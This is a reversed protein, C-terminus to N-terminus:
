EWRLARVPDIRSARKSPAWSAVLTVVFLLLPAVVFTMPDKSSVEFLLSELLRTVALAGVIGLVLGPVTPLLGQRVIMWQVEEERAGMAVRIGIERTRQSVVYAVIGFLGISGLLVAAGAAIALLTLTFAPQAVSEARIDEFTRARVVPVTPDVSAVIRRIPDVLDLLAGEAKVMYVMRRLHTKDWEGAVMPLFIVAGPEETLGFLRADELVGVIEGWEDEGSFRVREGLASGDMYQREFSENVWLPVAGDTEHDLRDMSRGSALNMGISAFLDSSAAGYMAFPPLDGEDTPRSEISFTRGNELGELVPISNIAGVSTVGPLGGIEDIVRQHFRAQERLDGGGRLAVAVTLVGETEFGPDVALLRTFSRVMLGAGVMLVLAVAIQASVLISRTRQRERGATAARDGSRLITASERGGLRGLPLAGLIVGAVLSLAMMLAVSSTDIGVEHLRPVLDIGRRVLQDVAIWAGALGLIGASIAILLGESLFSVAQHGRGAGLATRVASERDRGEARVHFLNAVNALAVLLVFGATALVVWLSAAVDRVVRARLLEVSASWGSAELFDSTLGEAFEPLRSQLAATAAAASELSVGPGLRAISRRGFTGFAADAPIEMPVFAFQGPEPFEFGPELIGIIRTSVGDLEVTRGLTSPDAGFHSQWAEYLLVAVPEAGEEADRAEYLRGLMPQARLVPFIEASAHVVRVSLPQELGTLNRRPLDFAAISEFSSSNERYFNVMAPSSQLEPLDLGPAHHRIEVIRDSEPYPLPRLLVANVVTFIATSAGLGLALTLTALATFGPRRALSRMSIRIDRFWMMTWRKMWTENARSPATGVERKWETALRGLADICLLATTPVVSGRKWAEYLVSRVDEVV